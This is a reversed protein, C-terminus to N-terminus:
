NDVDKVLVARNPDLTKTGYLTDISIVDQKLDIDYDMVVRLSFGKYNAVVANAAGQPLILPRTVLCFATRHFAVGVESKSNGSTQPPVKINQTSYADFGFVRRGLSAERLGDTDGRVDLQHFLPDSLWHAKVQPGIVVSRQSPSVNRENLVRDADIMVKPTDWTHINPLGGNGVEQSIDDRLALLDRDIKQSIAEMAPNLLQTAFDQIQLTMEEATVAFSVDAFHNLRVPIDTEVANQIQIGASRDYEYADFTAPKRVNVTDGQKGAFDEDLDRHVLQAMVCTEYLTALAARAIVQPTLFVNAM